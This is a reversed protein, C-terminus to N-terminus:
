EASAMTDTDPELRIEVRRNQQRGEPTDNSAIPQTAGLGSVSLRDATIDAEDTFYEATSLARALSLGWNDKFIAQLKAGLPVDDSHGSIMIRRDEISEFSKALDTLVQQGAASLTSSGTKFLQGSGLLIGITNDEGVEVEVNDHGAETMAAKISKAQNTALSAIAKFENEIRTKEALLAALEDQMNLLRDDSADLETRLESLAKDANKGHTRSMSLLSKLTDADKRLAALKDNTAAGMAETKSLSAQLDQQEQAAKTLEQTLNQVEATLSTNTNNSSQLDKEATELQPKLTDLEGALMSQDKQNQEITSNLANLQELFLAKQADSQSELKAVNAQLDSAQTDAETLKSRLSDAVQNLEDNKQTSSLAEAKLEANLSKQEQLEGDLSAKELNLENIQGDLQSAQDKFGRAKIVYNKEIAVIQAILQEREANLQFRARALELIKNNRVSVKSQLEEAAIKSQDQLALQQSNLSEIEANLKETQENLASVQALHNENLSNIEASLKDREAESDALATKLESIQTLRQQSLRANESLQNKMAEIQRNADDLEAQLQTKQDALESVSQELTTINSQLQQNQSELESNGAVLQDNIEKDKNQQEALESNQDEFDRLKRKLEEIEESQSVYSQSFSEFLRENAEVEVSRDKGEDLISFLQERLDNRDTTLEDIQDTLSMSREELRQMSAQRQTLEQQFNAITTTNNASEKLLQNREAVLQEVLENLQQVDRSYCAIRTAISEKDLSSSDNLAQCTESDVVTNDQTQAVTTNVSLYSLTTLLSTALLAKSTVGRNKLDKM